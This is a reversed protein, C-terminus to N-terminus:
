WAPTRAAATRRPAASRGRCRCRRSCRAAFWRGDRRHTGSRRGTTSPLRDGPCSPRGTGSPATGRGSGCGATRRPPCASHRRSGPHRRPRAERQSGPGRRGAHLAPARASRARQRAPRQPDGIRRRGRSSARASARGGRPGPGARGSPSSRGEGLREGRGGPLTLLAPARPCALRSAPSGRASWARASRRPSRRCGRLEEGAVVERPRRAREEPDEAVGRLFVEPDAVLGVRVATREVAGAAVRDRERGAAQRRDVREPRDGDVVGVLVEVGVLDVAVHDAAPVDRPHLGVGVAADGDVELVLRGGGFADGVPKRTREPGNPSM